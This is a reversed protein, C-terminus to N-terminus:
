KKDTGGKVKEVKCGFESKLLLDLYEHDRTCCEGSYTEDNLFRVKQAKDFLSKEKPSEKVYKALAELGGAEGFCIKDRIKQYCDKKLADDIYRVDVYKKDKDYVENLQLYGNYSKSIAFPRDLDPCDYIYCNLLNSRPEMNEQKNEMNNNQNTM